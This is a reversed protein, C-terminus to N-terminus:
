NTKATCRVESDRVKSYELRYGPLVQMEKVRELAIEMAPIMVSSNFGYRGFSLILSFYLPIEAAAECWLFLLTLLTSMVGLLKEEMERRDLHVQFIAHLNRRLSSRGITFANYLASPLDGRLLILLGNCLSAESRRETEETYTSHPTFM